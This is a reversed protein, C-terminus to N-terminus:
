NKPRKFIMRNDSHGHGGWDILVLEWGRIGLENLQKQEIACNHHDISDIGNGKYGYEIVKYEWTTM